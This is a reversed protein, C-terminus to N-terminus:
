LLSEEMPHQEKQQNKAECTLRVAAQLVCGFRGISNMFMM